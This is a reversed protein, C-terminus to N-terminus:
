ADDGIILVGVPGLEETTKQPILSRYEEYANSLNQGTESFLVCVAEPFKSRIEQGFNVIQTQSARLVVTNYCIAAHRNGTLDLISRSDYLDPCCLSAQVMLIAAVNGVQGKQLHKHLIIAIRKM